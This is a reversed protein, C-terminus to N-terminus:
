FIFHSNCYYLVSLYALIAIIVAFLWIPLVTKKKTGLGFERLSGDENYLFAPSLIQVIAFLIVFLLISFSTINNKVVSKDM